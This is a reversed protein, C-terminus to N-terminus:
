KHTAKAAPAAGLKVTKATVMGQEEPGAAVVRDGVKLSKIDVATAGQTIKTKADMMVMVTKGDGTKVMLNTGDISSVTGMVTHDHGEHARVLGPVALTSALMVAAMWRNKMVM